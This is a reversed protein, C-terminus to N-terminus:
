GRRRRKVRAAISDEPRAPSQASATFRMTVPRQTALEPLKDRVANFLEQRQAERLRSCVEWLRNSNHILTPLKRKLLNFFEVRLSESLVDAVRNFDLFSNIWGAIEDKVVNTNFLEKRQEENYVNCYKRFEYWDFIFGPAIEKLELYFTDRHEQPLEEYIRIYDSSNVVFRSFHGRLLLFCQRKEEEPLIKLAAVVLASVIWPQIHSNAILEIILNIKESSLLLLFSSADNRTQILKLLLAPLIHELVVRLRHIDTALCFVVGNELTDINDVIDDLLERSHKLLTDLDGHPQSMVDALEDITRARATIKFAKLCRISVPLSDKGTYRNNDIQEILMGKISQFKQMISKLQQEQEHEALGINAVEAGHREIVKKLDASRMNLCTEKVRNAEHDTVLELLIDIQEQISQPIKECAKTDLRDYYDKFLVIAGYAGSGAKEESGVGSQSNFALSKVLQHLHNLLGSDAVLTIYEKMAVRLAQTDDSHKLLRELDIASIWGTEAPTEDVDYYLNHLKDNDYGPLSLMGLVSVPLLYRGSESLVHTKLVKKLEQKDLSKARQEDLSETLIDPMLIHIASEHDSAFCEATDSLMLTLEDDPCATYSLSSGKVQRWNDALISKVSDRRNDANLAELLNFAVKLRYACHLSDKFTFPQMVSTNQILIHLREIITEVSM